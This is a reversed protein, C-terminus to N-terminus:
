CRGQPAGLWCYRPDLYLQCIVVTMMWVDIRVKYTFWLMVAYGMIVRPHCLGSLTGKVFPYIDRRVEEFGSEKLVHGLHIIFGVARSAERMVNPLSSFVELEDTSLDEGLAPESFPIIVARTYYRPNYLTTYM